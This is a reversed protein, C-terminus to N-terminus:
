SPSRGSFLATRSTPYTEPTRIAGYISMRKASLPAATGSLVSEPGGLGSEKGPQLEEREASRCRLNEPADRLRHEHQVRKRCGRFLGPIRREQGFLRAQRIRALIPVRPGDIGSGVGAVLASISRRSRCSASSRAAISRESLIPRVRIPCSWASMSKIREAQARIWGPLYGKHRAPAELWHRRKSRNAPKGALGFPAPKAVFFM